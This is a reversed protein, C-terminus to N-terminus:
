NNQYVNGIVEYDYEDSHFSFGDYNCGLSENNEWEVITKVGNSYQIVDGEYVEVGNKDERNTFPLLITESDGNNIREFDELTWHNVLEDWEFMKKTQTNFARYKTIKKM